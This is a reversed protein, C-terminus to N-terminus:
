LINEPNIRITFNPPLSKITEVVSVDPWKDKPIRILLHTLPKGKADSFISTFIDSEYQPIQEKLSSLETQNKEKDGGLSIKIFVSFPPYGWKKRETIEERYFDSFNGSSIYSFIQHEPLRTQVLLFNETLSSLKGLTNLVKEHIRFDPMGFVADLSIVLTHEFQAHLYNLALETGLLISGPKEYFTHLATLIKKRTTTTESDIRVIRGQPFAEKLEKYVKEIGFGYVKLNWNDCRVCREGADRATGCKHCVFKNGMSNEHLAVPANCNKCMSQMGCDSCYVSTALGKRNCLIFIRNNNERSHKILALAEHSLANKQLEKAKEDDKKELPIKRDILVFDAKRINRLKVPSIETIEGQNYRWMTEISSLSDGFLIRSGSAEAIEEAVKRIDLFPRRLTKYFPSNEKEIVIIGIDKRPISLFQGTAIILVPHKQDIISNWLTLTKEKSLFSGLVYSYTEVGKTLEEGLYLADEITPSCIFVSSKKAFEERILSRYTSLRSEDDTQLLLKESSGKRTASEEFLATKELSKLIHQPILSELIIGATTAYYETLKFVAKLLASSVCQRTSIKEIKKLAFGAQRIETKLQSANQSSLVLAYISRSRLPVKVLSGPKIDQSTFYSLYDKGIGKAIPIATIINM